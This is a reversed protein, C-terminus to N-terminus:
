TKKAGQKSEGSPLTTLITSKWSAPTLILKNKRCLGSLVKPILSFCDLKSQFPFSKISYFFAGASASANLFPSPLRYSSLFRAITAQNKEKFNPLRCLPKQSPQFKSAM